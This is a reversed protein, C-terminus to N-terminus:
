PLTVCANCHTESLNDRSTPASTTKLGLIDGLAEHSMTLPRPLQGERLGRSDIRM